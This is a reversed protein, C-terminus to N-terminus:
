VCCMDCIRSMKVYKVTRKGNDTFNQFTETDKGLRSASTLSVITTARLRNSETPGGRRSFTEFRDSDADAKM